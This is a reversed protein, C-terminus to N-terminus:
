PITDGSEHRVRHRGGDDAPAARRLVTNSGSKAAPVDFAGLTEVTSARAAFAALAVPLPAVRWLRYRFGGRARLGALPFAQLGVSALLEVWPRVHFRVARHASLSWGLERADWSSRPDLGLRGGAAPAQHVLWDSPTSRGLARHLNRHVTWASQQGSWGKVRPNLGWPCWWDLAVGAFRLREHPPGEIRELPWASKHGPLPPADPAVFRVGGGRGRVFGTAAEPEARWALHAIGACALVEGPNAPDVPWVRM